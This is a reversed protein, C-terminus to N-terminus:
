IIEEDSSFDIEVDAAEAQSITKSALYEKAAASRWGGVSLMHALGGFAYCERAMGRRFCHSGWSKPFDWQLAAAAKKLWLMSKPYDVTPFVFGNSSQQHRQKIICIGCLLPGSQKCGCKRSVPVVKRGTHKRQIHFTVEDGHIEVSSTTSKWKLNVLESKYRLAFFRCVIFAQAIERQGRERLWKALHKTQVSTAAM